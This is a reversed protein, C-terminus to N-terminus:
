LAVPTKSEEWNCEVPQEQSLQDRLEMLLVGLRNKGTGDKGCGWYRDIPSNEVIEANRTTLLLRRLEPHQTFKAYLARRMVEDKVTEWDARLPLSRNRGWQAAAKPTPMRCVAEEHLTGAFKQAQFYHETTPWYKGNLTIGHKSFNSFRGYPEENQNYFYIPKMFKRTEKVCVTDHILAM